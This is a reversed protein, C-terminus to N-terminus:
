PCPPQSEVYAKIGARDNEILNGADDMLQGWRQVEALSKCRGEDNGWGEYFATLQANIVMMSRQASGMDPNEDYRAQFFDRSAMMMTEAEEFRKLAVLSRAAEGQFSAIGRAADINGPDRQAIYRTYEIAKEFNEVAADHDNAMWSPTALRWYSTAMARHKLMNAAPDDSGRSREIEIARKAIPIAQEATEDTSLFEAKSRVAKAIDEILTADNPYTELLREYEGIVASVLETAQERRDDWRQTIALEMQSVLLDKKLDLSDPQLALARESLAIAEELLVEADDSQGEIFFERTARVLAMDRRAKLLPVTEPANTDISALITQARDIYGKAEEYDGMHSMRPSGLIDALRVFGEAAETKLEDSASADLSLENLYETAALALRQKAALTGAVADMEDYIDFIMTNALERVDNFRQDAVARAQEADNYLHTTIALAGILGVMALTSATVALRNRGVFKRMRYAWGGNVANVAHGDLLNQIDDALADVSAYRTAPDNHTAKNVVADFEATKQSSAVMADLLKGLSFIDSLTNVSQGFQREPAAYGPTFSLSAVSDETQSADREDVSPKAIGFDILKVDGDQTVLVNAPTIDRHIILNQHAYSVASCVTAFLALRGALSLSRRAAWETIPLGEIYEMVIYPEGDQTEGGDFLRAINPHSFSALIQQENQFRPRLKDTLLGQRIIKIAVTHDFDGTRREGKLVAGMGGQGIRETIAYAGISEPLASQTVDRMHDRVAGGTAIISDAEGDAALLALAQQRVADSVGEYAMLWEQRSVSPQELAQEFLALVKAGFEDTSNSM